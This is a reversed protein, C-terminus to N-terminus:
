ESSTAAAPATMNAGVLALRFGKGLVLESVQREVGV